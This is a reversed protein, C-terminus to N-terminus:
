GTYALLALPEIKHSIAFTERVFEENAEAKLESVAEEPTRLWGLLKGAQVNIALMVTKAVRIHLNGNKFARVDMLLAGDRLKFEVKSNSEWQHMEPGDDCDFGLNNAVTIFDRLMEASSKALGNVAEWTYGSTNIGGHTELVMRFCLKYHTEDERLYRWDKKTFVRQNSKYTEVTAKQSMSKFLEVLQTDFHDGAWKCVWMMISYINAETFDIIAKGTLSELFEKRQKTALRKTIDKLHEFLAEWYRNKLGSIKSRLGDLITAKTVGLEKLLEPDLKVVARYTDILKALDADYAAVMTPIIGDKGEMINARWAADAEEKTQKVPERDFRELEPLMDEIAADFASTGQGDKVTFRVVEVKARAQRDANEFDFEGLSHPEIGRSELVDALRANERWRQPIVLYITEASCERLIRFAWDEFQSYPPNCFVVSVPKDVLTQEHFETGLVVIEKPMNTLHVTSVEIAYLNDFTISHYSEEDRLEEQIGLLARGDGAGIDLMDLTRSHYHRDNEIHRIDRAVKRIIEPTTPYWEFDEGNAKLAEIRQRTDAKFISPPKRTPMPEDPPPPAPTTERAVAKALRSGNGNPPRDFLSQQSGRAAALEAIRQEATTTM